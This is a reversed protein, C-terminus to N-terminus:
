MPEERKERVGQMGVGRCAWGGFERLGRGEGGAQAPRTDTPPHFPFAVAFCYACQPHGVVDYHLEHEKPPPPTLPLFPSAHPCSLVPIILFTSLVSQHGLSNSRLLSAARAGPPPPPPIPLPPPAFLNTILRLYYM